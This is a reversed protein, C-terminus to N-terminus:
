SSGQCYAYMSSSGGTQATVAIQTVPRCPPVAQHKTPEITEIDLRCVTLGREAPTCTWKPLKEPRTDDRSTGEGCSSLALCTILASMKILIM